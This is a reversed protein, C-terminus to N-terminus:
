MFPFLYLAPRMRTETGQLVHATSHDSRATVEEVSATQLLPQVDLLSTRKTMSLKLALRWGVSNGVLVDGCGIGVRGSLFSVSNDSLFLIRRIIIIIIHFILSTFSSCCLSFFGGRGRAHSRSRQVQTTETIRRIKNMKKVQPQSWPSSTAFADDM